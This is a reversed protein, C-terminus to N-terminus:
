AGVLNPKLSEDTHMCTCTHVIHMYSQLSMKSDHVKLAHNNCSAVCVCVCVCVVSGYKCLRRLRRSHTDTHNKVEPLVTAQYFFM